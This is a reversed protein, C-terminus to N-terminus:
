DRRSRKAPLERPREHISIAGARQWGDRLLWTAPPEVPPDFHHIEEHWMEALRYLLASTAEDADRWEFWPASSRPDINTDLEGHKKRNQLVYVLANRVQRPSTLERSHFRDIWVKGRRELVRNIARALRIAVGQMARVLHHKSEGEVIFHVHNDQVSFHTITGHLVEPHTARHKADLLCSRIATFVVDSRLLYLHTRMTVLVPHRAKHPPRRRHAVRGKRPRGAGSRQGGHSRVVLELQVKQRRM